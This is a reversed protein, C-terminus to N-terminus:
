EGGNRNYDIYYSIMAQILTIQTALSDSEEMCADMFHAAADTPECLSLLMAMTSVMSSAAISAQNLNEITSVITAMAIEDELSDGAKTRLYTLSSELDSEFSEILAFIGDASPQEGSNNEYEMFM